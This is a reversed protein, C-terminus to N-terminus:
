RSLYAFLSAIPLYLPPPPPSPLPFLLIHKPPLLPDWLSSSLHSSTTTLHSNIHSTCPSTPSHHLFPSLLCCIFLPWHVASVAPIEKEQFIPFIGKINYQYKTIHRIQGSLWIYGYFSKTSMITKTAVVHTNLHYTILSHAYDSMLGKFVWKIEM